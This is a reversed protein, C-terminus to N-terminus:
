ARDIRSTQRQEHIKRLLSVERDEDQTAGRLETHLGRSEQNARRKRFRDIVGALRDRAKGKKCSTDHLTTALGKLRPDEVVSTLNDYTPLVGQDSLEFCAKLLARLSAVTIEELAVEHRATAVLGPDLLVIELLEEELPSGSGKPLEVPDNRRVGGRRRATRREALGARLNAEPLRFRHALRGLVLNERRQQDAPSLSAVAPPTSALTDLISGVAHHAGDVSSVDFHQAARDMVFDLVGIANELRRLFDEGGENLLLDCPDKGEPLPLLRLDVEQAMFLELSRDLARRGADDGDFVVIVKGTPGVHRRLLRVQESTLATGLTAVTQRVGHQHAMVCDTYGEVLVASRSAEISQRAVDLGYLQESKHFLPTEPSNIYKATKEAPQHPLIRGGFAVTRGRGDRVPFMVRGKFRDYFGSANTRRAILGV